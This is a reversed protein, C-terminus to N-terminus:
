FSYGLSFSVFDRDKLLNYRGGGFNSTYALRANYSLLYDAALIFTVSKRGDVFNLIPSPSTGAVDHYWVITPQLNISAFADNIEARVVSRYGWSFEDAFGDTETAPQIGAATFWPTNSTYTGPGEYRLVSKDEMDRVYTAGVETLFVWQDAGLGPGFLRTVTAQAQVVDKNRIGSVKEDFGYPTGNALQSLSFGEDPDGLGILPDLPSLAAFLLEVDDVQLPQDVRYSAEAQFALGNPWLVPVRPVETNVSMGFTDIDEPFERFYAATSAYDGQGFGEQRLGTWGSILPLRSHLHTWYFGFETYNLAPEFWRLNIGFEGGDRADVDKARPVDVGVPANVGTNPETDSIGPQGFGLLVRQGGPSAFDNTSFLTGAPEIETHEWTFPVFGQVSFRDSLSLNASVMPIAELAERLEAGPVRLTAVDITSMSNIGNQIFTSEGWNLAQNGLRVGLIRDGIEFQRSLYLDLLQFEKGVENKAANTLPKRRTEGWDMIQFDRFYFARGFVNWEDYELQLEHTAKLVNSAFEGADFNLNGDDGNVSNAEGGNAVGIISEDRAELRYISGWSITTDFYGRLEGLDINIASAPGPLLMAILTALAVVPATRHLPGRGARHRPVQSENTLM